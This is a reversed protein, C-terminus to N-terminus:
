KQADVTRRLARVEERIATWAELSGPIGDTTRGARKRVIGYPETPDHVDYLRVDRGGAIEIDVTGYGFLSGTAGQRYGVNQVRGYEIQRVSRGLIGTKVTVEGTTLVFVTTIVRLYHLVGPAVAVPLLVLAASNVTHALGIVLALSVVSVAIGPLARARRPSAEWLVTRDGFRRWDETSNATM